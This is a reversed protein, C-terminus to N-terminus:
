IPQQNRPIILPFLPCGALFETFTDFVCKDFLCLIWKCLIFSTNREGGLRLIFFLYRPLIGSLAPGQAAAGGPAVCTPGRRLAEPQQQQRLTVSVAM